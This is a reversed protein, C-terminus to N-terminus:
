YPWKTVLNTVSWGAGKNVFDPAKKTKMTITVKKYAYKKINKYTVTKSAVKKGDNYAEVKFKYKKLTFMRNNVIYGTMKVQGNYYTLQWPVFRATMYPTIADINPNISGQRKYTNSIPKKLKTTKNISKKANYVSKVKYKYNIAKKASYTYTIRAKGNSQLTKIKKSGRYIHYSSRNKYQQDYPVKIVLMVKDPSM